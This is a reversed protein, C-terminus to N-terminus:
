GTLTKTVMREGRTWGQRPANQMRSVQAIGNAHLEELVSREPLRVGAIHGVDGLAYSNAGVFLADDWAGEYKWAGFVEADTQLIERPDSTTTISDTHARVVHYGYAELKKWTTLLQSRAAGTIHAAIDVHMGITYRTTAREWVGKVDILDDNVYPAWTDDPSEVSFCLEERDARQGFKGYVLNGLPKMLYGAASARGFRQTVSEIRDVYESLSFTSTYAFGYGPEIHVGAAYLGGFESTHLVCVTRGREVGGYTFERTSADWAGVPYVLPVDSDITCVFVGIRDDTAGQWKTFLADCPLEERLLATYQRNVDIRHVDGHFKSGYAIGGRYGKGEMEMAMLLPNPRWKRVGDPIFRRASASAIMGATPRLVSGFTEQLLRAYASIASYFVETPDMPGDASNDASAAFELLTALPQGTMSEATTLTWTRKGRKIKLWGIGGGGKGLEIVYGLEILQHCVSAAMVDFINVRGGNLVFLTGARKSTLVYRALWAALECDDPPFDRVTEDDYRVEVSAIRDAGDEGWPEVHLVMAAWRKERAVGDARELPPTFLDKPYEVESEALKALAALRDPDDDLSLIYDPSLM